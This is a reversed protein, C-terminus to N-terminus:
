RGKRGCAICYGHHYIHIDTKEETSIAGTLSDKYKYIILHRSPGKDIARKSILIKKGRTQPHLSGGSIEYEEDDSLPEVDTDAYRATESGTDEFEAGTDNETDKFGIGNFHISYDNIYETNGDIAEISLSVKGCWTPDYKELSVIGKRKNVTAKAVGSPTITCNLIEIGKFTSDTYENVTILKKSIRRTVAVPSTATVDDGYYEM